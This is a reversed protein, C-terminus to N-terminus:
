GSLLMAPPITPSATSSHVTYRLVHALVPLFKTERMYQVIKKKM